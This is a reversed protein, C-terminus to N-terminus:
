KTTPQIKVEFQTTHGCSLCKYTYVDKVPEGYGWKNPWITESTVMRMRHSPCSAILTAPIM